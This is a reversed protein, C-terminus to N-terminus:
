VPPPEPTSTASAAAAVVVVSKSRMIIQPIRTKAHTKQQSACVSERERERMKICMFILMSVYM